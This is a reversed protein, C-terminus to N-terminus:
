RPTQIRVSPSDSSVTPEPCAAVPISYERQWDESCAAVLEIQTPRSILQFTSCRKNPTASAATPVQNGDCGVAAAQSAPLSTSSGRQQVWIECRQAPISHQGGFNGAVDRASKLILLAICHQSCGGHLPWRGGVGVGPVRVM